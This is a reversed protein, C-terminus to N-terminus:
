LVTLLLMNVISFISYHVLFLSNRLSAIQGDASEVEDNSIGTRYENNM